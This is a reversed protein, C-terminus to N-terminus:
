TLAGVFAISEKARQLVQLLNHLRESEPGELTEGLQGFELRRHGQDLFTSLDKLRLGHFKPRLQLRLPSPQQARLGECCSELLLQL